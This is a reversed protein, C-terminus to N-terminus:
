ARASIEFEYKQEAAKRHKKRVKRMAEHAVVELPEFVDFPEKM